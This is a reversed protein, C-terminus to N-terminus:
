SRRCTAADLLHIHTRNKYVFGGPRDIFIRNKFDRGLNKDESFLLRAGSARALAIVHSDNSRLKGLTPLLLKEKEIDAQPIVRVVNARVLGAIWRGIAAKKYLERTNKGGTVLTVKRQKIADLIPQADASPPQLAKSVDADIILCM